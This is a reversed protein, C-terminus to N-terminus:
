NRKFGYCIMWWDSLSESVTDSYKYCNIYASKLKEKILYFQEDDVSFDDTWCNNNKCYEYVNKQNLETGTKQVFEDKILEFEFLIFSDRFATGEFLVDLDYESFISTSVLYDIDFIKTFAQRNM